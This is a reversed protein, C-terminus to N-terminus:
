EDDSDGERCNVSIELDRRKAEARVTARYGELRVIGETLDSYYAKLAVDSVDKLMDPTLNQSM